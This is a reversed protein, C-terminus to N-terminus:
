SYDNSLLLHEMINSGSSAIDIHCIGLRCRWVACCESFKVRVRSYFLIHLFYTSAMIKFLLFSLNTGTGTV